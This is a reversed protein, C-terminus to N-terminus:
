IFILSGIHVRAEKHCRDGIIRTTNVTASCHAVVQEGNSILIMARAFCLVKVINITDLFCSSCYYGKCQKNCGEM